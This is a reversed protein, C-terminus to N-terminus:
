EIRNLDDLYQDMLFPVLVLVFRIVVTSRIYLACYEVAIVNELRMMSGKFVVDM